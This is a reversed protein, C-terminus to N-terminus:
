RPIKANCKPCITDGFAIARGCSPCRALPTTRPDRRNSLAVAGVVAPGPQHQNRYYDLSAPGTSYAPETVVAHYQVAIEQTRLARLILIIFLMLLALGIALLGVVLLVSLGCGKRSLLDSQQYKLPRQGKFQAIPRGSCISEGGLCSWEGLIGPTQSSKTSGIIDIYATLM